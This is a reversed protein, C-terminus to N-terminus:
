LQGSIVRGAFGGNGLQVFKGNWAEGVPIWVELRIDSDKTPRSTVAVKCITKGGVTEATAKTVEAHPLATTALDECATEAHAVAPAALGLAAAIMLSASKM